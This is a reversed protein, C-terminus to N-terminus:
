YAGEVFGVPAKARRGLGCFERFSDILQQVGLPFAAAAPLATSLDGPLWAVLRGGGRPALSKAFQALSKHLTV